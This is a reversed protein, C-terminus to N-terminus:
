SLSVVRKNLGVVTKALSELFKMTAHPKSQMLGLFQERDLEMVMCDRRAIVSASRPAGTLAAFGGVIDDIGVTGVVIGDVVVDAEGEVLSYVENGLSGQEIITSGSGFFNMSPAFSQETRRQSRWLGGYIGSVAGLLESWRRVQAADKSLQEYFWSPVLPHGMIAFDSTLTGISVGVIEEIGIIDGPEYGLVSAGDVSRLVTGESLVILHGSFVSQGLLDNSAREKVPTPLAVSQSLEKCLLAYQEVCRRTDVEADCVLFM